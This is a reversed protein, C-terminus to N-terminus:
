QGNDVEIRPVYNFVGISVCRREDDIPVIQYSLIYKIEVSHLEMMNQQHKKGTKEAKKALPNV